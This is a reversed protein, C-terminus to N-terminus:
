STSEQELQPTADQQSDQSEKPLNHLGKDQSPLMRGAPKNHLFAYRLVVLGLFLGVISFYQGPTLGFYRIDGMKGIGKTSPPLRLFDLSFRLPAYIVFFLGTITGEPVSKRNVFLMTLFIGIFAIFEYLGLNHRLVGQPDKMAMFFSTAYGPHDFAITCGLRGLMFGFIFGFILVDSYPLIRAKRLKLVLFAIALGGIMGGYSSLGEWVRFISMPDKWIKGPVYFLDNLVHAFFFGGPISYMVMDLTVDQELKNYYTCWLVLLMGLVTGAGVLAGFTNFAVAFPIDM